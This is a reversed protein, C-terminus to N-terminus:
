SVDVEGEIKKYEEAQKEEEKHAAIMREVCWGKMEMLFDHLVGLAVGNSCSFSIEEGNDLKRSFNTYAKQQITM